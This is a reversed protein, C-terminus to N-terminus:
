TEDLHETTAKPLEPSHHAEVDFDIWNIGLTHNGTALYLTSYFLLPQLERFYGNKAWRQHAIAIVHRGDDYDM